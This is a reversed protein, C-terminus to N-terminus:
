KKKEVGKLIEPNEYINGIVESSEFDFIVNYHKDTTFKSNYNDWIVQTYHTIEKCNYEENEDYIHEYIIMIDGEYIDKGNKDQLGIWEGVSEPLVEFDAYNNKSVEEKIFCSNDGAKWFYGYHWVGRKDLGRFKIERM